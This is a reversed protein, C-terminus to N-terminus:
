KKICKGWDYLKQTLEPSICISTLLIKRSLPMKWKILDIYFKRTESLLYTRDRNWEVYQDSVGFKISKGLIGMYSREFNMRAYYEYQPCIRKTDNVIQDWIAIAELDRKVVGKRTISGSNFFWFYKIQNSYVAKKAKSIIQFNFYIDEFLMGEWFRVKELLERTYLKDWAYYHINFDKKRFFLEYMNPSDLIRIAIEKEKPKSDEESAIMMEIGSFDSGTDTILRYLHEYMDPAIWDDSDVFGIFMGKSAEIGCNRASSLGGNNKHIVRIRKDRKRWEDCMQPCNDPSGDDVLILEFDTFTQKLISNICRNLYKEVKYVPVIISIIPMYSM